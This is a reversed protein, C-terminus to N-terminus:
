ALNIKERFESPTLHVHKKFYKVFNTPEEFGLFYGIEKVSETTHALVRKAELLTRDNIIEKLTKGLVKTTAQNLRKETIIIQKAYYNVQKINKYNTELLDKFLMVYDLDADKKIESFNQKRSERDSHLLLNHLHNQLIDWQYNDKSNTLETEMQQFLDAFFTSLKQLKIQSVSFLDNFLICNRLFKTDSDTKCFFSETFLIAKGTFETQNDFRHVIDKSLFLLSNSEIQIPNFDVLHTTPSGSKLWIIHYFDARHTTTVTSKHKKYLEALDVIQFELPLDNKFILKKINTTM